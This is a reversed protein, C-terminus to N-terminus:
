QDFPRDKGFGVADLDLFGGLKSTAPYLERLTNRTLFAQEEALVANLLTGPALHIDPDFGLKKAVGVLQRRQVLAREGNDLNTISNARWVALKDRAKRIQGDGSYVVNESTIMCEEMGCNSMATSQSGHGIYTSLKPASTAVPEPNAGAALGRAPGKARAGDCFCKVDHMANNASHQCTLKGNKRINLIHGSSHWGNVTETKSSAFM